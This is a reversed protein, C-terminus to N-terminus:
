NIEKEFHQYDKSNDWEGGWTFGHSIFLKYCLDNKDIKAEFEKDRDAYEVGNEPSINENGDKDYTVYPNYRPNIDIAMGRAHNSLTTTNAIVRYNFASSNNDSMSLVDDGGYEDVLLMKEIPYKNEYLKKMIDIIDDAIAKNVILEGIHVKGDFGMHLVRIYNLDALEINDNEKYSVGMIREMVEDGIEEKFFFGEIFESSIEKTDLVEGAKMARINEFTPIMNDEEEINNDNEVIDDTKNEDYSAEESKNGSNNVLMSDDKDKVLQLALSIAAIIMGIVLFVFLGTNNKRNNKNM